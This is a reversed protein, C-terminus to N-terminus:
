LSLPKFPLIVATAATSKSGELDDLVEEYDEITNFASRLRGEYRSQQRLLDMAAIALKERLDGIEDEAIKLKQRHSCNAGYGLSVGLAFALIASFM